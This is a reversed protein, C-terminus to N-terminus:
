ASASASTPAAAGGALRRFQYYAACAGESSVMTAGLPTRPTCSTGFAPCQNPKILGQLVEGAHCQDSEAVMLQGVGFKREADFEAYRPSLTWGSKPIMGIGRWQRDTVAFVDALAERAVVNGVATVARPYANRLETTGSELLEVAQRVGELLDLPEFGTVVIPIGYKDVLPGYEGTGMVTCVHGAALFAQVRNTPSSLIAEMAPPVLVHSVLLSFNTLGLRQAHLVSMANAPATTEFGVGFFVVQKDPNEAAIRTADLPSYVIRVDGGRARVSFLDQSSGPVRLMDGFSCFIVDDRAAIALARDIMELPTVCVPCGPGHIFEVSGDLLQDIGNRIISHTQGGCVEMVTWTRTATRRIAEVLAKAAVPDRFEDLYKM